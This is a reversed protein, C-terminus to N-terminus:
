TSDPWPLGYLASLARHLSIPDVEPVIGDHGRIHRVLDDHPAEDHVRLRQPLTTPWLWRGDTLWGATPIDDPSQAASAAAEPLVLPVGEELYALVLKRLAPDLHVPKDGPADDMAAVRLPASPTRTWLLAAASLAARQYGPLQGVDTFVEVMPTPDTSAPALSRGVTVAIHALQDDTLGDGYLLYIRRPPPWPTDIAPYRWARWLGAVNDVARAATIAATDLDDVGIAGDHPVTLDLSYALREGFEALVAPGVPALAWWNGKDRSAQDLGTADLGADVLTGRLLALDEEGPCCLGTATAFGVAQAVDVLRGQAVWARATLLLEDPVSDALRSLMHHYAGRPTWTTTAPDASM